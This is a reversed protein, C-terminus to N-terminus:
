RARAVIVPMRVAQAVSFGVSGLVMGAFGGRGHSGVVLLQADESHRVLCAAPRAWEVVRRVAVDPYREGWGALREALLENAEAELASYDSRPLELLDSDSIAHVAVLEVGRRSAADFAIEIALESAPSGDIGVVVPATAPAGAMLPDEDHIVAVPCHAHRLLGASVSGLLVRSVAGLGRSGVVVLEAEKTMEVLVPVTPGAPTETRVEVARGNRMAEEAVKRADDLYERYRREREALFEAPMPIEPTLLMVPPPCVAVVTLAVDRRVAERAAWDLAVKASSSGDVGVL